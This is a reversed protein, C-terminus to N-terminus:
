AQRTVVWCCCCCAAAHVAPRQARVVMVVVLVQPLDGLLLRLWLTPVAASSDAHQHVIHARQLRGAPTSYAVACAEVAVAAAPVRHKARPALCVGM